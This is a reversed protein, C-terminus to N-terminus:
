SLSAAILLAQIYNWTIHMCGASLTTFGKKKWVLTGVILSFLTPLVFRSLFIMILMNVSGSGDQLSRIIASLSSPFRYPAIHIAGFIVSHLATALIMVIVWCKQKFVTKDM